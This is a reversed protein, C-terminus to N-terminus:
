AALSQNRFCDGRGDLEGLTHWSAFRVMSLWGIHDRISDHNCCYHQLRWFALALSAFVSIILHDGSKASSARVSWWFSSETVFDDM